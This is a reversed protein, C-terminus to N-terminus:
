LKLNPSKKVSKAKVVEGQANFIDSVPQVGRAVRLDLKGRQIADLSYQKLFPDRAAIKSLIDQPIARPEKGNVRMLLKDLAKSWQYSVSFTEIKTLPTSVIPMEAKDGPNETLVESGDERRDKAKISKEGVAGASATDKIVSETPQLTQAQAISVEWEHRAVQKKETGMVNGQTDKMEVDVIVERQGTRRVAIEDGIKAQSNGLAAQLGLGWHTQGNSLSVFYSDTNGKEHQYPATGHKVLTVPEPQTKRVSCDLSGKAPQRLNNPNNLSSKKAETLSQRYAEKQALYASQMQKSSFVLNLDKTIAIDIVQQKFEQTGTITLVGFKEAALTMATAVHDANPKREQMVLKDGYDTFMKNGNSKELFEVRQKKLDKKAIVDNMRLQLQEALAQQRKFNDARNRLSFDGNEIGNSQSSSIISKYKELNSLSMAKDGQNEQRQLFTLIMISENLRSLKSQSTYGQTVYRSVFSITNIQQREERERLQATYVTRLVQQTEGWSLHMHQTCFDNVSFARAGVKIRGSGGRIRFLHYHAKILGQTTVFHQLIREPELRQKIEKFLELEQQQVRQRSHSKLYQESLSNPHDAADLGKAVRRGNQTSREDTSGPLRGEAGDRGDRRSGGRDVTWRLPHDRSTGPLELDPHAHHSLVSQSLAQRGRDTRVLTREPVGPLGNTIQTFRQLGVSESGPKFSAARGRPTLHYRQNYDRIREDIFEKRQDKELGYYVARLKPTARRIHKMEHSVKDRWQNVRKNLTRNTPKARLLQRDNIYSAKFCPETLRINKTAGPLKIKLYEEASGQKGKTVEGYASLRQEFAQMSRINNTGILEFLQKKFEGRSGKFTDGKYRSIFDANDTMLGYKRQHDYPSELSFKRNISEQIADFYDINSKFHGFPNLSNNTVLNKQPIVIHVHPLREITEGTKKDSYSKIKPYHIEAYINYEDPHYAHMITAKYADYVQIIKNENIEKESFSLTIHYYNERKGQKNLQKILQDTLSLNGDICVRHDLADRSLERGSKIGTILYEVIGSQGSSTRALM